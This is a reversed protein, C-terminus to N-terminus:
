VITELRLLHIRCYQLNMKTIYCRCQFLRCCIFIAVISYHVEVHPNRHYILVVNAVGHAMVVIIKRQDTYVQALYRINGGDEFAIAIQVEVALAILLHALQNGM